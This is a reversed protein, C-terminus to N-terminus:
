SSLPGRVLECTALSKEGERESRSSDAADARVAAPWGLGGAETSAVALTRAAAARMACRREATSTEERPSAHAPMRVGLSRSKRTRRRRKM